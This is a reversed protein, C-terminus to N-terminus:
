VSDKVFESLYIEAGIHFFRIVHLSVVMPKEFATTDIKFNKEPKKSVNKKWIESFDNKVLKKFEGSGEAAEKIDSVTM